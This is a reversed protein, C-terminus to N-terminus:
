RNDPSNNKIDKLSFIISIIYCTLFSIVPIIFLSYNFLEIPVSTLRDILPACLLIFVGLEIFIIRRSKKFRLLYLLLLLGVFSATSTAATQSGESGFMTFVIFLIFPLAIMQGNLMIFCYSLISLVRFITRTKINKMKKHRQRRLRRGRCHTIVNQLKANPPSQFVRSEVRMINILQRVVTSKKSVHFYLKRRLLCFQLCFVKIDARQRLPATINLHARSLKCM